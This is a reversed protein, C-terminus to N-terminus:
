LPNISVTGGYVIAQSGISWSQLKDALSAGDPDKLIANAILDSNGTGSPITFSFDKTKTEGAALSMSTNVLNVLMTSGASVAMLLNLTAAVAVSGKTSTNTVSVRITYNGGEVVGASFSNGIGNSIPNGFEDMLAMNLNGSQETGDPSTTSKKRTALYIVGGIIAVGALIGIGKKM